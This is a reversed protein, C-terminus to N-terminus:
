MPALQWLSLNHCPTLNCSPKNENACCHYIPQKSIKYTVVNLKKMITKENVTQMTGFFGIINLALDSLKGWPTVLFVLDVHTVIFLWTKIIFVKLNMCFSVKLFFFSLYKSSYIHCSAGVYSWWHRDKNIVIKSKVYKCVYKYTEYKLKVNSFRACV